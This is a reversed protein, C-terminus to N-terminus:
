DYIRNHLHNIQYQPYKAVFYKVGHSGIFGAGGTILINKEFTM